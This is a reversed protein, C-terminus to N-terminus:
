KCGIIHSVRPKRQTHIPRNIADSTIICHMILWLWIQAGRCGLPPSLNCHSGATACTTHVYLQACLLPQSCGDSVGWGKRGEIVRRRLLRNCCRTPLPKLTPETRRKNYLLRVSRGTFLCFFLLLHSRQGTEFWLSNFNEVAANM